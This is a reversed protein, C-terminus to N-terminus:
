MGRSVLNRYDGWQSSEIHVLTDEAISRMTEGGQVLRDEVASDSVDNRRDRHDSIFDAVADGVLGKLEGMKPKGQKCQEGLDRTDCVADGTGGLMVGINVLNGVARDMDIGPGSATVARRIKKRAQEPTEDLFIAGQPQSKSMKRGSNDLSLIHVPDDERLAPVPLETSYKNNHLKVLERALEIHPLQDKGTPVSQPRALIIDASMMVPYMLLSAKATAVDDSDKVKERLTPLRLLRAVSVLGRLSLEARGVLDSVSLQSYIVGEFGSAIYTRSLEVAQKGIEQPDMTTAAHLEAVFVADRQDGAAEKENVVPSVAGLYNAITLDATPRVGTFKDVAYNMFVYILM